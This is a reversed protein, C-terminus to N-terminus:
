QATELREVRIVLDALWKSQRPTPLGRWYKMSRVFDWERESLQDEYANKLLWHVVSRWDNRDHRQNDSSRRTEIAPADPVSREVVSALDHFDAGAAVLTRGIARATAVVEGDVPSSLLRVLQGLRPAVAKLAASM